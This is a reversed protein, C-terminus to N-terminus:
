SRKVAVNVARPREQSNDVEYTVEDGVALSDFTGPEAMGSAHFFIDRNGGEPRIFGFGKDVLKEIKGSNM